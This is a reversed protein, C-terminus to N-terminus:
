SAKEDILKNFMTSYQKYLQAYNGESLVVREIVTQTSSKYDPYIGGFFETPDFYPEDLIQRMMEGDEASPLYLNVYKTLALQYSLGESAAFLAQTIQGSFDIDGIGKPFCAVQYSLSQYTKHTLQNIDFDPIPLIGWDAESDGLEAIRNLPAFLFLIQGDRFAEMAGATNNFYSLNKYLLSRARTIFPARNPDSDYSLSPKTGYSNTVYNLDSAAWFTQLLDGAPETSTFGYIKNGKIRGLSYAEQACILFNGQDWQHNRVLQYMDPFGSATALTKNFFVVFESDANYCFDGCLGYVTNGFTMANTASEFVGRTSSSIYPISAVNQLSSATVLEQCASVSLVALDCYDSGALAELRIRETVSPLGSEETTVIKIHFKDEVARNREYIKKGVYNTGNQPLILSPDDTAIRFSRGQKDAGPLDAILEEATSREGAEQETTPDHSPSVTNQSSGSCAPLSVLFLAILLIAITRKM